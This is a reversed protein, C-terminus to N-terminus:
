ATIQLVAYPVTAFIFVFHNICKQEIVKVIPVKQWGNPGQRFGQDWHYKVRFHPFDFEKYFFTCYIWPIFM